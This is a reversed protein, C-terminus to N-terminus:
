NVEFVQVRNLPSDLVYFRDNDSVIKTPFYFYGPSKGLGGFEGIFKGDPDYCLIMHRVTSVVFIRGKKDVTVGTPRSIQRDGGGPEGIRKLYNGKSDFVVVQGPRMDGFYINGGTDTAADLVM